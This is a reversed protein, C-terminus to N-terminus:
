AGSRELDHRDAGGAAAVARCESRPRHRGHASRPLAVRRRRRGKALVESQSRVGAASRAPVGAARVSRTRRHRGARHRSGMRLRADRRSTRGRAQAEAPDARQRPPSTGARVADSLHRRGDARGSREPDVAPRRSEDRRQAREAHPRRLGGPVHLARGGRHFPTRGFVRRGAAARAHVATRGPRRVM